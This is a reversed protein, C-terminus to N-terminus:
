PAGFVRDLIEPRQMTAFYPGPDSKRTPDVDVHGWSCAARTWGYADRGATLLREIAELQAPTFAQYYRRRSGDMATVVQDAPVIPGKKGDKNYPWGMWRGDPQKRVEGVCVVEGGILFSNAGYPSAADRVLLGGLERLKASTKGGAHGAGRIFPVQQIITGDHEIWVHVSSGPAAQTRRVMSRGTGHSTSTWHTLFGGPKGSRTRWKYGSRATLIHEVKAGRLLGQSDITLPALVLDPPEQEALEPAPDADDVLDREAEAHARFIGAVLDAVHRVAEIV